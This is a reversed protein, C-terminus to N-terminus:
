DGQCKGPYNGLKAIVEQCDREMGYGVANKDIDVPNLRGTEKRIVRDVIVTDVDRVSSHLVIAAVPDHVAGCVM